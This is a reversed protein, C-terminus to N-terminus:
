VEMGQFFVGAVSAAVAGCSHNAHWGRGSRGTVAAAWMCASTSFGQTFAAPPWRVENVRNGASPRLMGPSGRARAAASSSM